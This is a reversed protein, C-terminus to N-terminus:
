ICEGYRVSLSGRPGRHAARGGGGTGGAEPIPIVSVAAPDAHGPPHDGCSSRVSRDLILSAPLVSVHHGAVGPALNRPLGQLPQGLGRKVTLGVSLGVLGPSLRAKGMSLSKGRMDSVFLPGFDAIGAEGDDALRQGM